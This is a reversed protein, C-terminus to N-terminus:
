FAILENGGLTANWPYWKPEADDEWTLLFQISTRRKSTPPVFKHDIVSTIDAYEDDIKAARTIDENDEDVNYESLKTVHFDKIEGTVLHEVTYVTGIHNLVRYPGHKTTHRNIWDPFAKALHKLSAVLSCAFATPFVLKVSRLEMGGKNIPLAARDYVERFSPWARTLDSDDHLGHYSALLKVQLSQFDDIFDKAHVPFQSRLWYNVKANYCSKHLQYRAQVTPYRLM